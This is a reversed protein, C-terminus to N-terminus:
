ESSEVPTIERNMLVRLLRSSCNTRTEGMRSLKARMREEVISRYGMTLEIERAAGSEGKEEIFATTRSIVAALGYLDIAVEALRKQAFQM